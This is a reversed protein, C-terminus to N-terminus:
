RCSKIKLSPNLLWPMVDPRTLFSNKLISLLRQNRRPLSFLRLFLYNMYSSLNYLQDVIPKGFFPYGQLSRMATVASILEKYIIFAQGKHSPAKSVVMDIIQGYQSFMGYLCKRLEVSIYEIDLRIFRLPQLVQNRLKKM